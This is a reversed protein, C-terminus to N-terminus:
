GEVVELDLVVRGYKGPLHVEIQGFLNRGAVCDINKVAIPSPAFNVIMLLAFSLAAIKLLITGKTDIV